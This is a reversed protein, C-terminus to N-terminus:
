EAESKSAVSRFVQQLLLAGETVVKQGAALGSTVALQGGREAGTMVRVREFSGKAREVFAYNGDQTFIVARAPVGVGPRGKPEFVATVLMEGKLRRDTNVVAGRARIVRTQPDVFDAVAELRAEFIEDSYSPVKFKFLAGKQLLPLDNEHADIQAWLRVPDTVVFLAPAGGQDSRLEQGPNLNREVVTGAIPSKLALTQDIGTGGGYLRVRGQARALESRARAHEAEAQSLDKRPAVGNDHLERIRALNKEALAIDAQAKGADAQAQGFDPSALYALAQGAKVRDGPQAAIRTVRGGFPPYIRVTRNEDWVLRGTLEIGTAELEVVSSVGLATLQKSDAAFTIRTGTVVPKAHVM